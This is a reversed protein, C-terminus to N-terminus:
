EEPPGLFRYLNVMGGFQSAVYIVDDSDIHIGVPMSLTGPLNGSAGFVLLLQGKRDFIQVNDFAADTVYLNGMSDHAIGKPRSFCGPLICNEGWQREYDGEVDFVQVRFNMSDVVFVEDDVITLALPFLFQGDESGKAGHSRLHDGGIAFVDLDHGKSDAVWLEGREEHIALAVPSVLLDSSGYSRVFALEADYELVRGQASDAVFVHGRADTAVAMPFVLQGKGREGVIRFDGGEKDFALLQQRNLDTVFIRGRPDTTVRFPRELMVGKHERAFVADVVRQGTTRPQAWLSTQITDVYEVIPDQPEPPWRLEPGEVPTEVPIDAKPCGALGLSLVTVFLGVTRLGNM